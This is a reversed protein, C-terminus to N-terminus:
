GAGVPGVARASVPAAGDPFTRPRPRVPRWRANMAETRTTLMRGEGREPSSWPHLGAPTEGSPLQGRRGATPQAPGVRHVGSSGGIGPQLQRAGADARTANPPPTCR